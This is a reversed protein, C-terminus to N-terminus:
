GRVYRALIADSLLWPPQARVGPAVTQPFHGAPPGNSQMPISISDEMGILRLPNVKTPGLSARHAMGPFAM